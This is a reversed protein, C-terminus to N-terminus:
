KFIAFLHFKFLNSLSKLSVQLWFKKGGNVMMVCFKIVLEVLKNSMRRTFFRKKIDFWFSSSHCSTIFIPGGWNSVARERRSRGNLKAYLFSWCYFYWLNACSNDFFPGVIPVFCTLQFYNCPFYNKFYFDFIIQTSTKNAVFHMVERWTLSRFPHTTMGSFLM